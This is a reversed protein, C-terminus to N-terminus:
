GRFLDMVGLVVPIEHQCNPCDVTVEEYRPGPQSEGIATLLERRDRLGLTRAATVGGFPAGGISEVCQALVLTNVEADTSGKTMAKAIAEEDEGTTRRLVAEGKSTQVAIPGMSVERVPVDETLSYEVEHLQGCSPCTVNLDIGDGYTARRIHMILFDRDGVCLSDLLTPTVEENGIRVVGRELLVRKYEYVKNTRALAEEDEGNLERVEATKVIGHLTMAGGPLEVVTEPPDEITPFETKPDSAATLAENVIASAEEPDVVASVSRQEELQQTM